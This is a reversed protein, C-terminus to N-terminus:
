VSYSMVLMLYLLLLTDQVSCQVNVTYNKERERVYSLLPNQYKLRIRLLCYLLSFICYRYQVTGRVTELSSLVIFIMSKWSLVVYAIISRTITVCKVIFIM